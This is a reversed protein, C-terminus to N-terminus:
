FEPDRCYSLLCVTYTCYMASALNAEAQGANHMTCGVVTTTMEHSMSLTKKKLSSSSPTGSSLVTCYPVTCVIRTGIADTTRAHICFSSQYEHTTIPDHILSEPGKSNDPLNQQKSDNRQSSASQYSAGSM